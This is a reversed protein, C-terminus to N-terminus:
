PLCRTCYYYQYGMRQRIQRLQGCNNCQPRHTEILDDGYEFLFLREAMLGLLEELTQFNNPALADTEWPSHPLKDKSIKYYDPDGPCNLALLDSDLLYAEVKHGSPWPGYGRGTGIKVYMIDTMPNRDQHLYSAVVVPYHQYSGHWKNPDPGPTVLGYPHVAGGLVTGAEEFWLHLKPRGIGQLGARYRALQLKVLNAVTREHQVKRELSRLDEDPNRRKKM